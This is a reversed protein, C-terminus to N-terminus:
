SNRNAIIQVDGWQKVIVRAYRLHDHGLEREVLYALGCNMLDEPISWTNSIFEIEGRRVANDAREKVVQYDGALPGSCNRVMELVNDIFLRPHNPKLQYANQGHSAVSMEILGATLTTLLLFPSQVSKFM